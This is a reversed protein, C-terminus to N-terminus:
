VDNRLLARLQARRADTLKARCGAAAMPQMSGGAYRGAEIVCQTDRYRLWARQSELLAAAYGFGGGRSRDGADRAKMAAYTAKWQRTMTADARAFATAASQNMQAQTQAAAPTAIALALVAANARM